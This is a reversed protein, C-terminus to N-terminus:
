EWGIIEDMFFMTFIYGAEAGTQDFLLESHAAENGLLRIQDIRYFLEHNKNELNLNDDNKLDDIEPVLLKKVREYLNPCRSSPFKKRWMRQSEIDIIKRCLMGVADWSKISYCQVMQEFLHRTDVTTPSSIPPMPIVPPYNFHILLNENCILEGDDSAFEKLSECKSNKEFDYVAAVDASVIRNCENCKSSLSFLFYDYERWDDYLFAEAYIPENSISESVVEFRVNKARCKPCEKRFFLSDSM